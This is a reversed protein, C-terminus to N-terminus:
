PAPPTRKYLDSLLTITREAFTEFSYPVSQDNSAKDVGVIFKLDRLYKQHGANIANTIWEKDADNLPMDEEPPPQPTPPKVGALIQKAKEIYGAVSAPKRCFGWHMPDTKQGVYRGGWYFGLSEMDAVMAPPMDSQWTYSYPNNPANEDVALWGSHGSAHQTGSVPRCEGGFPGWFDNNRHAWVPYHHKVDQIEFVLNWLPVLEKRLNVRMNQGNTTNTYDTFGVLNAPPCDPWKYGGWAEFDGNAPYGANPNTAGYASRPYWTM